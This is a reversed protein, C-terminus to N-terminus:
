RAVRWLLVVPWLMIVCMGACAIGDTRTSRTSVSNVRSELRTVLYGLAAYVFLMAFSM